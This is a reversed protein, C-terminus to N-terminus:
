DLNLQYFMGKYPCFFLFGRKVVQLIIKLIIKMQMWSKDQLSIRLHGKKWMLYLMYGVLGVM